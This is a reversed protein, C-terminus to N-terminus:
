DVWSLLLVVGLRNDWLESLRDVLSELWGCPMLLNSIQHVCNNELLLVSNVKIINLFIKELSTM